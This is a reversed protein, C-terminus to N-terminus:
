VILAAAPWALWLGVREIALVLGIAVVAGVGLLLLPLTFTPMRESAWGWAVRSFIGVLGITAVVAGALEPAAGGREVLYLPLYANIAAIGSGMLFAYASSWRVGPAAAGSRVRRPEIGRRAHLGRDGPVILLAIVSVWRGAGGREM